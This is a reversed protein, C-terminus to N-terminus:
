PYAKRPEQWPAATPAGAVASAVARLTPDTVSAYRRIMRETKWGGLAMLIQTTFGANLAMRSGHHRLDHFTFDKLGAARAAQRFVRGVDARAYPQGEANPFVWPSNHGALQVRLLEQARDSRIVPRPGEKARPLMVVGQDLFVDERRLTRVESLRM